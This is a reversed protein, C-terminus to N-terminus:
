PQSSPNNKLVTVNMRDDQLDISDIQMGTQNLKLNMLKEIKAESVGLNEALQAITLSMNGVKIKTDRDFKVKGNEVVPKGEVAVYIDRDKLFPLKETLKNAIMASESAGSEQSFEGLNIVAGAHLQGGQIKTNVVKVGTAATPTQPHSHLKSVVINRLDRDTIEVAVKDGPASQSVRDIIKQQTAVAQQQIQAPSQLATGDKAESEELAEVYEGPLETVQNWTYYAMGAIAALISLSLYLLIKRM